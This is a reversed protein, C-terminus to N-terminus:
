DVGGEFFGFFEVYLQGNLNFFTVKNDVHLDPWSRKLKQLLHGLVVLHYDVSCTKGLICIREHVDEVGILQACRAQKTLM